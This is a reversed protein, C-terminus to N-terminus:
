WPTLATSELTFFALGMIFVADRKSFKGGQVQLLFHPWTLQVVTLCLASFYPGCEEGNWFPSRRWYVRPLFQGMSTMSHPDFAGKSDYPMSIQLGSPLAASGSRLHPGLFCEGPSPLISNSSSNSYVMPSNGRHNQRWTALGRSWPCCSGVVHFIRVLVREQAEEGGGSPSWLHLGAGTHRARCLGWGPCTCGVQLQWDSKWTERPQETGHEWLLLM